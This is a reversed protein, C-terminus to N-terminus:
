PMYKVFQLLFKFFYKLFFYKQFIHLEIGGANGEGNDSSVFADIKFFVRLGEDSSM